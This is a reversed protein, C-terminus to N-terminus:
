VNVSEAYKYKVMKMIQAHKNYIHNPSKDLENAISLLTKGEVHYKYLIQNDLGRFSSILNKMEELDNM